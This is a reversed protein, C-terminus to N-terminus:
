FHETAASSLPRANLPRESAVPATATTRMFFFPMAPRSFCSPADHTNGLRGLQQLVYIETLKAVAPPEQRSNPLENLGSV